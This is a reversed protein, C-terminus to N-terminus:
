VPKLTIGASLIKEAKFIVCLKDALIKVRGDAFGYVSLNPSLQVPHCKPPSFDAIYTTIYTCYTHVSPVAQYYQGELSRYGVKSVELHSISHDM